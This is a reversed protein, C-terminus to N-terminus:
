YIKKWKKEWEKTDPSIKILLLARQLQLQRINLAPSLRQLCFESPAPLLLTSKYLDSTMQSM